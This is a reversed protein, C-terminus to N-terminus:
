EHLSEHANESKGENKPGFLRSRLGPNRAWSKQNQTKYGIEDFYDVFITCFHFYDQCCTRNINKSDPGSPVDMDAVGRRGPSTVCRTSRTFRSIPSRSRPANLLLGEGRSARMMFEYIVRADRRYAHRRM